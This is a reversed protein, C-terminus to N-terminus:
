KRGEAKAIAREAALLEEYGDGGPAHLHRVVTRLAELMEPAAAILNANAQAYEFEERGEKGRVQIDYHARAVRVGNGVARVALTPDVRWPGPTHKSM